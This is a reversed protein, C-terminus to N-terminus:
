IEIKFSFWIFGVYNKKDFLILKIYTITNIAM